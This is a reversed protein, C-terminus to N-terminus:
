YLNEQVVLFNKFHKYKPLVNFIIAGYAAFGGFM